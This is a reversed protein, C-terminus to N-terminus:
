TSYKKRLESYLFVIFIIKNFPVSVFIFHGKYQFIFGLVILGLIINRGGPLATKSIRHAATLFMMWALYFLISVPLGFYLLTRMYGADVGMYYGHGDESLYKADGYLLTSRDPLFYMDNLARLSSVEITGKTLLSTIPQLVYFFYRQIANSDLHAYILIAIICSLFFTVALNIINTPRDRWISIFLVYLFLLFIGAIATRGASLLAASAASMIIFDSIRLKYSNQHLKSTYVIFFLISLTTSLGFAISGSVGLGRAGQYVSMRSIQDQTKTLNWVLDKLFPFALMALIAIVQFVLIWYLFKTLFDNNISKQEITYIYAAIAACAPISVLSHALPSTLGFDYTEALVSYYVTITTLISYSIVIFWLTKSRLLSILKDIVGPYASLMLPILIIGAYSLNTLNIINVAFIFLFAILFVFKNLTKHSALSM